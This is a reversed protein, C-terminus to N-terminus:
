REWLWIRDPDTEGPM